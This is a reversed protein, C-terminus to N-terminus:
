MWKRVLVMQFPMFESLVGGSITDSGDKWISPKLMLHGVFTSIANFSSTLGVQELENITKANKSEMWDSNFGLQSESSIFVLRSPSYFISVADRDQIDFSVM